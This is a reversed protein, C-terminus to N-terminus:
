RKSPHGIVDMKQQLGRFELQRPAHLMPKRAIGISPYAFCFRRTASSELSRLFRICELVSFRLDIRVEAFLKAVNGGSAFWHTQQDLEMFGFQQITQM